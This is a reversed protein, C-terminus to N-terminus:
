DFCYTNAVHEVKHVGNYLFIIKDFKKVIQHLSNVFIEPQHNDDIKEGLKNFLSIKVFAVTANKDHIPVNQIINDQDNNNNNEDRMQQTIQPPLVKQFLTETKYREIMMLNKQKFEKKTLNIIIGNYYRMTISGFILLLCMSLWKDWTVINPHPHDGIPM